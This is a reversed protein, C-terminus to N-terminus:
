PHKDANLDKRLSSYYSRAEDVDFTQDGETERMRTVLAANEIADEMEEFTKIDVLVATRRNNEDVLYKRDIVMVFNIIFCFLEQEYLFHTINQRFRIM